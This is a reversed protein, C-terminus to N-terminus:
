ASASWFGSAKQPLITFDGAFEVPEFRPGFDEVPVDGPGFPEGAAFEVERVVAEVAMEGRPSFVFGGDDPFAFGAFDAGEGVLLEVGFDGAAGIDQFREAYFFAVSNIGRGSPM